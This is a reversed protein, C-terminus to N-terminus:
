KINNFMEIMAKTSIEPNKPFKTWKPIAVDWQHRELNALNSLVYYIVATEMNWEPLSTASKNEAILGDKVYYGYKWCNDKHIGNLVQNLEAWRYFNSQQINSLIISYVDFNTFPTYNDLELIKKLDSWLEEKKYWGKAYLVLNTLKFKKEM